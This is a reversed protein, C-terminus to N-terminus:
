LGQPRRRQGAFFAMLSSSRRNEVFFDAGGNCVVHAM